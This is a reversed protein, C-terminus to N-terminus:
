IMHKIDNLIEVGNLLLEEGMHLVFSVPFLLMNVTKNYRDFNYTTLEVKYLINPIEILAM